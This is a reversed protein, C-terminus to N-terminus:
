LHRHNKLKTVHPPSGGVAPLYPQGPLQSLAEVPDVQRLVADTVHKGHGQILRFQQNRFSPSQRTGCSRDPGCAAVKSNPLAPTKPLQQPASAPFASAARFVPDSLVEV